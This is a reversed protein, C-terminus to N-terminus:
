TKLALAHILCRYARDLRIEPWTSTENAMNWRRMIGLCYTFFGYKKSYFAEDETKQSVLMYAFIIIASKKGYILKFWRYM